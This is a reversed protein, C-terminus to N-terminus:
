FSACFPAQLESENQPYLILVEDTKPAYIAWRSREISFLSAKKINVSYELKEPETAEKETWYFAPVGHISDVRWIFKIILNNKAIKLSDIRGGFAYNKKSNQVEIKGGIFSQLSSEEVDRTFM